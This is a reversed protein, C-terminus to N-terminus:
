QVAAKRYGLATDPLIYKELNFNLYDKSLFKSLQGYSPLLETM